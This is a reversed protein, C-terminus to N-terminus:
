GHVCMSCQKKKLNIDVQVKLRFQEDGMYVCTANNKLTLTLRFWLDLDSMVWTCVHQMTKKSNVDVQVKFALECHSAFGQTTSIQSVCIYIHGAIFFDVVRAPIHNQVLPNLVRVLKKKRSNKKNRYQSLLRKDIWVYIKM